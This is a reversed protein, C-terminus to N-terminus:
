NKRRHKKLAKQWDKTSPMFEVGMGNALTGVPVNENDDFMAWVASENLVFGVFGAKMMVNRVTPLAKFAEETKFTHRVIMPQVHRPMNPSEKERAFSPIYPTFCNAHYHGPVGTLRLVEAAQQFMMITQHEYDSLEPRGGCQNRVLTEMESSLKNCRAEFEEPTQKRKQALGITKQQWAKAIKTQIEQQIRAADLAKASEVKADHKNRDWLPESM